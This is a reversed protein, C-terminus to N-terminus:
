LNECAKLNGLVDGIIMPGGPVGINRLLKASFTYRLVIPLQTPMSCNWPCIASRMGVLISWWPRGLIVFDQIWGIHCNTSVCTYNWFITRGCIKLNFIQEEVLKLIHINFFFTSGCSESNFFQPLVVKWISFKHFCLIEISLRFDGLTVDGWISHYLPPISGKKKANQCNLTM